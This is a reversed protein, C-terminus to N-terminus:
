DVFSEAIRILQPLMALAATAAETGEEPMAHSTNM